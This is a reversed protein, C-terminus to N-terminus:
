MLQRGSGFCVGSLHLMITGPMFICKMSLFNFVHWFLYAHFLMSCGLSTNGWSLQGVTGKKSFFIM